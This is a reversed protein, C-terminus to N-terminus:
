YECGSALNPRNFLIVSSITHELATEMKYIVAIYTNAILGFAGPSRRIRYLIGPSVSQPDDIQRFIFFRNQAPITLM